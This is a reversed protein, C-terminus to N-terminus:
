PATVSVPASANGAADTMVIAMVAGPEQCITESFSGSSGDGTFTMNATDDTGGVTVTGGRADGDPDTYDASITYGRSTPGYASQCAQDESPKPTAAANSLVPPGAPRTTTTTTPPATTTTATTTTTTAPAATTTTAATTGPPVIKSGAPLTFTQGTKLDTVTFTPIATPNKQIVSIKAPDFDPWTKGTYTPTSASPVPPLLPNGCYCKTRPVGHDDVLVATGKQLVSPLKTPKGDKFGHNTVRTDERLVLPTLTAVYDPITAVTLRSGDPLVVDPDADLAAVWAAAKDPNAALFDVLKQADCSASDKTGGYLGPTGGANSALTPASALTIPSALDEAPQALAPDPAAALPDPSFPDAGVDAAPSLIIEGATSTSGDDDDGLTSVFYGAGVGVLLALVGAVVKVSRKRGAGDERAM